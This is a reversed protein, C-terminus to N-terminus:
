RHRRYPEDFLVFDHEARADALWAQMSALSRMAEVYARAPAPLPIDYTVFRWVIPSFFADAITFGGFLFPGETGYSARADRWIDVVRDVDRQVAIELIGLPLSAECNMPMRKRLEGFGAHMEACISRARARAARAEPWLKKEPFKEAVYEAIALSDWIVLEGDILAPVRGAPSYRRVRDAFDAANFGIIEEEFPISAERLLLWARLSWSSYNKNAIVLKM